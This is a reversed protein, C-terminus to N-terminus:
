KIMRNLLDILNCNEYLNYFEDIDKDDNMFLFEFDDFKIQNNHYEIMDNVFNQLSSRSNRKQYEKLEDLQYELWMLKNELEYDNKLEIDNWM